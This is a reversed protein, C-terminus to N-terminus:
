RRERSHCGAGRAQGLYLEGMKDQGRLYSEAAVFVLGDVVKNQLLYCQLFPTFAEDVSYSQSSDGQLVVARWLYASADAYNASQFLRRGEKLNSPGDNTDIPSVDSPEAHALPRPLLVTSILAALLLVLTVRM